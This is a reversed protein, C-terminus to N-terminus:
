KKAGRKKDFEKHEEWWKRLEPSMGETPPYGDNVAAVELGECAECLLRTLKDCRKKSALDDYAGGDYCPM